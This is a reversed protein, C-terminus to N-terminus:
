AANGPEPEFGLSAPIYWQDKACKLSNRFGLVVLEFGLSVDKAAGHPPANMEADRSGRRAARARPRLGGV